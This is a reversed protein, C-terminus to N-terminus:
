LSSRKLMKTLEATSIDPYKKKLAEPLKSKLDMFLIDKKLEDYDKVSEIGVMVEDRMVKDPLSNFHIPRQILYVKELEKTEIDPNLIVLEAKQAHAPIIFLFLLPLSVMKM